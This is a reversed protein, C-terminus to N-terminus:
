ALHEKAVNFFSKASNVVETSTKVLRTIGQKVRGTCADCPGKGHRVGFFCHMTPIQSRLMYNFSTKSKYQSQAHDTFKVLKHNPVKNEHLVELTVNHFKAILHVDHKMDDSVHVIECTVLHCNDVPCRYHVVRPHLTVQPLLWHLGQPEHQHQCLYNQAFDHAMVVEGPQLNVKCQKYQVYNWTAYFTHEGMDKLQSIYLDLLGEHNVRLHKWHMFTQREGKKIQIKNEWQKVLFRKRKDKFKQSNQQKLTDKLKNTGCKECKQLICEIQPFFTNYDCFSTDVCDALTGSIGTMYKNSEEVVADYNQCKECCSQCHPIKGQLKFNKPRDKYYTAISIKQTTSALMNYMCQSRIMSSRFFQINTFKRDPLPFTVEDSKMHEQIKKIEDNSLKKVFKHTSKKPKALCNFQYFKTWSCNISACAKWLSSFQGKMKEVTEQLRTADKRGKHKGIEMMYQGIDKGKTNLNTFYKQMYHAKRPSKSFQDFIHVLTCVAQKPNKPM